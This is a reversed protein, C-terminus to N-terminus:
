KRTRRYQIEEPPTARRANTGDWEGTIGTWANRKVSVMLVAQALPSFGLITLRDQGVPRRLRDPDCAAEAAADTTVGRFDDDGLRARHEFYGDFGEPWRVYFTPM